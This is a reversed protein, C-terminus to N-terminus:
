FVKPVILIKLQRTTHQAKLNFFVRQALTNTITENFKKHSTKIKLVDFNNM